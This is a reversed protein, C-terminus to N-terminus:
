RRAGSVHCGLAAGQVRRAAAVSCAAMAASFSTVNPPVRRSPMSRLLALSQALQLGARDAPRDTSPPPRAPLRSPLGRDHPVPTSRQIGIM